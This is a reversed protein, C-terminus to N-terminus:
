CADAVGEEEPQLFLVERVPNRLTSGIGQSEGQAGTPDQTLGAVTSTPVPGLVGWAAAVLTSGRKEGKWSAVQVKRNRLDQAESM